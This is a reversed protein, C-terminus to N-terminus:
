YSATERADKEAKRKKYDIFRQAEELADDFYEQAAEREEPDAFKECTKCAAACLYDYIYHGKNNPCSEPNLAFRACNIHGFKCVPRIEEPLSLIYAATEAVKAKLRQRIRQEDLFDSIEPATQPFGMGLKWDREDLHINCVGCSKPCMEVVFPADITFPGKKGQWFGSCMGKSAWDNCTAFADECM